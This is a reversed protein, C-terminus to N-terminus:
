RDLHPFFEQFSCTWHLSNSLFARNHATIFVGPRNLLHYVCGRIRFTIACIPVRSIQVDDKRHFMDKINVVFIVGEDHLTDISIQAM